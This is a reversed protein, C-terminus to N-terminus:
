IADGLLIPWHNGTGPTVLQSRGNIDSKEKRGFGCLGREISSNPPLRPRFRRKCLFPAIPTLGTEGLRSWV